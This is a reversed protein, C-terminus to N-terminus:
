ARQLSVWSTRMEKAWRYALLLATTALFLPTPALCKDLMWLLFAVGLAGITIRLGWKNAPQEKITMKSDEVVPYVPKKSGDAETTKAKAMWLGLVDWMFYLVFVYLILRTTSGALDNAAPSEKGGVETLVAIRFYLILMLQDILFRFLPLNFFKLQYAPRYRSRRFGIWSGLVLIAGVILHWRVAGDLQTWKQLRVFLEGIVLGFLIDTYLLGTDLKEPEPVPHFVDRLPVKM